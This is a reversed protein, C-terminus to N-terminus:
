GHIAIAYGIWMTLTTIIKNSQVKMDIETFYSVTRGRGREDPKGLGDILVKPRERRRKGIHPLLNTKKGSRRM